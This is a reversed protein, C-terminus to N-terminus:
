KGQVVKGRGMPKTMARVVVDRQGVIHQKEVQELQQYHERIKNTFLHSVM